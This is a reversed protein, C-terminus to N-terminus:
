DQMACVAGSGKSEGLVHDADAEIRDPLQSQLFRQGLSAALAGGGGEEAKRFVDLPALACTESTWRFM